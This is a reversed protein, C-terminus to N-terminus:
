QNEQKVREDNMRLAEVSFFYNQSQSFTFIFGKKRTVSVEIQNFDQPNTLRNAILNAIERAFDKPNQQRLEPNVFAVKIWYRFDQNTSYSFPRGLNVSSPNYKTRWEDVLEVV